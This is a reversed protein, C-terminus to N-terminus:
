PALPDRRAHALWRRAQRYEPCAAAVLAWFAPSHDMRRLHMLEHIMVYDRVWEPMTVLRWNLSIHRSPSCSGWRSQQNRVSVRAVSLEYRAALELLRKPLERAARLRLESLDAVPAERPAAQRRARLRAREREIWRREAEVFARAERLSGRRPLTVRVSGDDRVRIIYRKASRHRRFVPSSEDLSGVSQGPREPAVTVTEATDTDTTHVRAGPLGGAPQDHGCRSVLPADIEFPLVSQATM